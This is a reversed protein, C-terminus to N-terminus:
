KSCYLNLPRKLNQKTKFTATCKHCVHPGEDTHTHQHRHLGAMRVFSKGCTECTYPKKGTHTLKHNNLQYSTRFLKDCIECKCPREETHPRKHGDLHDARHFLKGCSEFKHNEATRNRCREVFESQKVSSQDSAKCILATGGTYQNDHGYLTDRRSSFNGSVGSLEQQGRGGIGTANRAGYELIASAEVMGARSTSPQTHDISSSSGLHLYTTSRSCSVGYVTTASAQYYQTTWPEASTADPIRADNEPIGSAEETSAHSTIAVADNSGGSSSSYVPLTFGTSRTEKNHTYGSILPANVGTAQTRSHLAMWADNIRQESIRPDPMPIRRRSQAEPFLLLCRDENGSSDSAEETGTQSTSAVAYDSSSSSSSSYVPLALGTCGTETMGCVTSTSEAAQYQTKEQHVMTSESITAGGEFNASAEEMGARSTSPRAHDISSVCGLQQYTLNGNDPVGEVSHTGEAIPTPQTNWQYKWADDPITTYTGLSSSAGTTSGCSATAEDTTIFEPPTYEYSREDAM